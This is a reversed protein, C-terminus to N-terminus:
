SGITSIGAEITFSPLEEESIVVKRFSAYYVIFIRIGRSSRDEEM